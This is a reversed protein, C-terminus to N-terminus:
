LETTVFSQHFRVADMAAEQKTRGRGRGRGEKQPSSRGHTGRGQGDWGGPGSCQGGVM